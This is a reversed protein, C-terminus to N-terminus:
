FEVSLTYPSLSANRNTDKVEIYYTGKKLNTILVEDDGLRYYDARKVLKGDKYISIVGDVDNKFDFTLKAKSDKDLKMAYWDTDGNPVGANLSGTATWKKANVKKLSLPKTPKYNRIVSGADEDKVNVPAVQASYPLLSPNQTETFGVFAIIYGKGKKALFSGSTHGTDLGKEVYRVTDFEAEDLKRNNNKDEFIIAASYFNGLLEAPIKKKLENTVPYRDINVGFLTDKKGPSLYFVDQDNPMAFNGSFRKAPLNKVKEMKDNNEYKDEPNKVKLKSTFTYQDFSISNESFYDNNVKVFYSHGERLGILMSPNMTVGDWDWTYNGGVQFLDTYTNGEEDTFEVMEYMEMMPINGSKNFTFDYIGTQEPTVAFWDEDDMMQLYGSAQNGIEYSRANEQIMRIMQEYEDEEDEVAHMEDRTEQKAAVYEESDMKGEEYEEEPTEEELFPLGDEDEPMVKSEMTVAYPLNSSDFSDTGNLMMQENMFFDFMFDFYNMKNSTSVVYEMGPEAEFVLTEGEGYGRSNSYYMPEIPEEEHQPAVAMTGKEAGEEGEGDEEGEEGEAPPFLQEGLYVNLSADIGPVATTKVRVMQKEEVTIKFYDEDGEDGTFTLPTEKSSYPFSDVVIPNELDNGDEALENSRQINLSYHSAGKGSDDFSGNADKIGIALTGSFPVKLLKGEPRGERVQNVDEILKGDKSYLHLKYKYDYQAAGELSTQIYEGKTVPIKIWQEENAKTIKGKHTYSGTVTVPKAANLIEKETTPNKVSAPIKKIDYNLVAVPDVLGNAYKTDFGKAGLDKATHELVYEVQAPTLNPHKTLLLSAVGAVVPSSMSTGSLYDFSSKREPEYIPAYVNEGPAVIDVSPGYTSYSSLKNEKNTSGVSIVGEFAAPYNLGDDGSNGASAVITVKKEIAKKVADEILPSPMSGGISMNIVKAGHDAAYLIADAIAFDYAGWGRDFVDINLIDANANVGFGGIGNNKKGAIIGSVHTGHFDPTPQNIPNVTNYGPLLQGTLDPHNRDAGQDIVAVKIAKDSVLKQTKEIQLLSLHYQEKVKPDNTSQTTYLASPSALEVKGMKQYAKLVKEMTGKKKIKVVTYNLKSITKIPTAGARSHESASITRNYKVILTDESISPKQDRKEQRKEELFKSIYSNSLNIEKGKAQVNISSFGTGVLSVCLGVMSLQKKWSLM